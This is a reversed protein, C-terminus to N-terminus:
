FDIELDLKEKFTIIDPNKGAMKKFKEMPTYPKLDHQDNTLVTIMRILDNRLQRRLHALVEAKRIEDEQVKNDIAFEIVFDEKLQPKRRTLTAYLIPHTESLPDSFDKWSKELDEQSFPTDLKEVLDTSGNQNNQLNTIALKNNEMREKISFGTGKIPSKITGNGTVAPPKSIGSIVQKGQDPSPVPAHSPAKDEKKAPPISRLSDTDKISSDKSRLVSCMQMLALELLLRKNNSSKYNIDAKGNIDLAKLLLDVSCRASQEHYRYRISAGVELLKLTAPDECVLLDRLHEGLGTIFHQSDFGNDIIENLTLLAGSIDSNLISDVIRFYYDYDLVNLNRIVTEYTLDNGAFSVIQDFMSLADRMAGDAKQAIIHLADEDATVEENKAVFALQGAIDEVSIRKFDFIQCRSLITPIIKHKETTALIFKAYSPPEELTKLFANFAAQSLMHVEDIIYVKYKGIQPPIRVQDVLNRIDDVSNNSAADLEHINFSATTNFSLCPKCTNCPEINETIHECNITKALIRACTTKGVGRPGCFLFAQALQNNRIANKLTVTISGQGIVTDFTAPRYKRASVIFNEM